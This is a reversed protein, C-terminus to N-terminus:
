RVFIAAWTKADPLTPIVGDVLDLMELLERGINDRGYGYQRVQGEGSQISGTEFVVKQQHLRRGQHRPKLLIQRSAGCEHRPFEQVHALNGCEAFFHNDVAGTVARTLKELVM